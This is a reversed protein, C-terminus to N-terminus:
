AAQPLGSADFTWDRYICVVYKGSRIGQDMMSGSAIQWRRGGATGWCVGDQDFFFYTQDPALKGKILGWLVDSHYRIREGCSELFFLLNNLPTDEETELVVAHFREAFDLRIGKASRARTFQLLTSLGELSAPSGEIHFSDRIQLRVDSQTNSMPRESREQRTFAM